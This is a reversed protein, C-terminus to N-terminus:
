DMIKLIIPLHINKVLVMKADSNKLEFITLNKEM